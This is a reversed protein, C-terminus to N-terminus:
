KLSLFSSDPSYLTQIHLLYFPDLLQSLPFACFTNFLNYLTIKLFHPSPQGPYNHFGKPHAQSERHIPKGVVGSVFCTDKQACAKSLLKAHQTLLWHSWISLTYTFATKWHRLFCGRSWSESIFDATRRMHTSSNQTGPSLTWLLTLFM